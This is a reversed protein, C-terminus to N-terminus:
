KRVTRFEPHDVSRGVSRAPRYETREVGRAGGVIWGNWGTRLLLLLWRWNLTDASRRLFSPYTRSGPLGKSSSCGTAEAALPRYVIGARSSLVITHTRITIANQSGMFNPRDSRSSGGGGCRNIFMNDHLRPSQSQWRTLSMGQIALSAFRNKPPVHASQSAPRGRAAEWNVGM